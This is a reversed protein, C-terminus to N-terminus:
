ISIKIRSNLKLIEEIFLDNTKPSIYIEEYRDYKIILGHRATAPKFGSWMTKGKIIEKIRDLEIKGCLPGSRYKLETQSLEYETQFNIWLLLGALLLTLIDVWIFTLDTKRSLITFLFSVLFIGSTGFVLIQFAIDKRSKFKM